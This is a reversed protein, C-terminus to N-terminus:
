RVTRYMWNTNHYSVNAMRPWHRLSRLLVSQVDPEIESPVVAMERDLNQSSSQPLDLLTVLYMLIFSTHPHWLWHYCFLSFLCGVVSLATNNDIDSLGRGNNNLDGPSRPRREPNWSCFEAKWQSFYAFRDVRSSWQSQTAHNHNLLKGRPDYKIASMPIGQRPRVATYFFGTQATSIMRVIM